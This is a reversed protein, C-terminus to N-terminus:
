RAAFLQSRLSSTRRKMESMFAQLQPHRRIPDLNPDRAFLDHCPFGTAAADRLWLVAEEAEGLRALASAAFYAAHHSPNAAKRQALGAILARAQRPDSPALLM